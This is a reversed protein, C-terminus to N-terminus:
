YHAAGCDCTKNINFLKWLFCFIKYIFQTLKSSSHCICDCDSTNDNETYNPDKADCNDCVGNVYNHEKAAIIYKENSDAGNTADVDANEDFYKHCAECYKYASNGNESCTAAVASETELTHTSKISVSYVNDDEDLDIISGDEDYYKSCSSALFDAYKMNTGNLIYRYCGAEFKCPTYIFLGYELVGNKEVSSDTFTVNAKIDFSGSSPQDWTHGNLDFTIAKDIVYNKYENCDSQLKITDGDKATELADGFINYAKYTEGSILLFAKNCYPCGACQGLENFTHSHEEDCFTCCGDTGWIHNNSVGGFYNKCVTCMYGKCTQETSLKHQDSKEGYYDGCKDCLYGLCNQSTGSHVCDLTLTVNYNESSDYDRFVFYYTKGKEFYYSLAFNYGEEDDSYDVYNDLDSSEYLYVCPDTDDSNSSITYKATEKPIFRVYIRDDYSSSVLVSINEGVDLDIDGIYALCDDCINNYDDKGDTHSTEDAALAFPVATAIMLIALLVSLLKKMKKM